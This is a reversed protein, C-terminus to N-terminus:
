NAMHLKEARRTEKKIWARCHRISRASRAFSGTSSGVGGLRRFPHLVSSIVINCLPSAVAVSLTTL